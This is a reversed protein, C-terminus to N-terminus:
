QDSGPPARLDAPTVFCGSSRCCNEEAQCRLGDVFPVSKRHRHPLATLRAWYTATSSWHRGPCQRTACRFRRDALSGTPGGSKFLATLMTRSAPLEAHLNFVFKDDDPPCGGNGSSRPPSGVQWRNRSLWSTAPPATQRHQRQHPQAPRLHRQRDPLSGYSAPQGGGDSMSPQSPRGSLRVAPPRTSQLPLLAAGLAGVNGFFRASAMPLCAALGSSTAIARGPAEGLRVPGPGGPWCAQPQALRQQRDLTSLILVSGARGAGARVATRRRRKTWDVVTLLAAPPTQRLCSVICQLPVACLESRRPSRQHFLAQCNAAPVSFAACDLKSCLKECDARRLKGRDWLSANWCQEVAFQHHHPPFIRPPFFCNLSSPLRSAACILKLSPWRLLLQAERSVDSEATFCDGGHEALEAYSFNTLCAAAGSGAAADVHGWITQRRTRSCGSFGLVSLPWALWAPQVF